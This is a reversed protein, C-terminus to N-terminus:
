IFLLLVFTIIQFMAIRTSAFLKSIHVSIQSGFNIELNNRGTSRIFKFGFYFLISCKSYAVAHLVSLHGSIRACM